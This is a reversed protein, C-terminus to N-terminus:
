IAELTAHSSHKNLISLHCNFYYICVLISKKFFLIFEKFLYYEDMSEKADDYIDM